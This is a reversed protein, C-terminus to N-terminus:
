SYRRKVLVNVQGGPRLLLNHVPDPKITQDPILTFTVRQALTALLLQGEMMAFHNGICIRPGAGFPFYAYRPLTKEREATFRDPDFKEPDPFYEPIRHITYPSILVLSGQPVLYGGIELDELAERMITAGPPYMRLTEKFVQLCYPLHALDAYTPTRGQLVEDVEQQLRRYVEPHQCLLYWSWSLASATTEHGTGFLTICEDMIQQDSMRDGEEDRARLLISLFDNLEASESSRRREDIMRQM